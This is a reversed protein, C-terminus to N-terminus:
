TTLRSALQGVLDELPKSSDFLHVAGGAGIAYIAAVSAQLATHLNAEFETPTPRGGSEKEIRQITVDPPTYLVWIQTAQLAAFQSIHFPTIRFGYDEKTVPHSDILVHSTPKRSQVFDLLIKDLDAIDQPTIINSSQERITAQEIATSHKKNVHRTLEAGYEFVSLNRVRQQLARSISSKGAAPAGTLYIVEGM